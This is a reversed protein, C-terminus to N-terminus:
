SIKKLKHGNTSVIEFSSALERHISKFIGSSVSTLRGLYVLSNTYYNTANISSGVKSLYTPWSCPQKSLISRLGGTAFSCVWLRLKMKFQIRKSAGSGQLLKWKKDNVHKAVKLTDISIMRSLKKNERKKEGFWIFCSITKDQFTV